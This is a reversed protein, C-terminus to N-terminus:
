DFLSCSLLRSAKLNYSRVDDSCCFDTDLKIHEDEFGLSNWNEDGAPPLVLEAKELEWVINLSKLLQVKLM